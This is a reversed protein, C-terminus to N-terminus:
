VGAAQHLVSAVGRQIAEEFEAQKGPVIRIDAVELVM